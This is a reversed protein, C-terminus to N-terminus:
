RLTGDRRLPVFLVMFVGLCSAALRLGRHRGTPATALTDDARRTAPV